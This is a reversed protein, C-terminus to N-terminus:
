INHLISAGILWSQIHQSSLQQLDNINYSIISADKDNDPFEYFLFCEKITSYLLLIFVLSFVYVIQFCYDQSVKQNFAVPRVYNRQCFDMM